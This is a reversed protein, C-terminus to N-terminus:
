PKVEELVKSLGNNTRRYIDIEPLPKPSYNNQTFNITSGGSSDDGDDDRSDQNNQFGNDAEVAGSYSTKLSIPRTKFLGDISSANKHIDTLDLVPTIVPNMDMEGSVLSGLNSMTDKLATLASKGVSEASKEVMPINKEMGLALGEDNFEGVEFFEKSPSNIGLVDKAANLAARAVDRAKSAIAGVGATLGKLMGNIIATALESGAKAMRDSNDNIAKTLGEIFSIILNVGAAIIKPLGKAVGNIFNAIIELAVTVVKSINDRIGELIAILIAYGSKVMKPVAKELEALMLTLLKLLTKIVVPATIDIATIIAMLVTTIAQTIAPGATAIVEAFTVVALGIQRAVQPLLSLMATVIAVMAATGAAGAISLATLGAAFALIGVGAALVGIGLLTIAAGLGILTPILPTLVLGAVGLVVFVGALMALGKAIEEWTMGSFLKLIPALIALSGAVVLLAAAGPLAGSMGLMALTIIGLAGALTTLGKGIEEWSMGGMKKLAETIMGLSLAVILIGAASLPATPPILSIAVGILTLAGALATLGAGIDSWSMGGMEKLADAIMGLSMAAVLVGAAGLVGTPPILAIATGILALGGAMAVLGKAIEEWSLTAFDKLASALIKIGTALLIIGAGQVIGGANAQNFKTFLILAGLVAGVGLLGKALEEWSLVALDGVASALVKVGAGLAIMAVGTSIMGAPNPMFKATAVMLGLVVTVGTLGKALEVWDLGSLAKVSSVMIRLAIGLVGMAGALAYIEAIDDAKLFKEMVMLAGFLQTFMVTIATLARTLGGADIKSLASISLTMIGIAAAIQLLTTARLTNQMSKFAGTVSEVLDNINDVLGGAGGGGILNRLMLLLGAGLGTNIANLLDDFKLGGMAESINSAFGQWFSVFKEAFPSFIKIIKGVVSSFGSWAKSAIKGLIGFPELKNVVNALDAAAKTGDFEGFLTKLFSGLRQLARIPVEIVKGLKGFFTEIGKGDKLAQRLGVLFDGVNATFELFGGSGETAVGLLRFIMKIFETGIDVGIGIVAFLGAFTRRINNMTDEGTKLGIFFDRVNETIEVLREATIAPFIDRFAKKIPVVVEMLANFAHTVADILATRGGLEKWEALLDNRADANKTLFGGIVDSLGSWLITAEEVNGFLIEWTKAWGSGAAEKLTDFLATMTKVDQAASLANKALAQIQVIQEKTYGLAKLQADSLDGTFKQLTETLVQNTLWGEQLSNRFSGNKKIMADVNVGHVKATEILSDQFLRGAMGGASELSMWDQLRVSGSSLALSMQYMARAADTANTGTVAAVNSLGKIAATSTKIDIGATTFMKVSKTMENFSYITQDSYHNLEDLADTVQDLTTGAKATNALITKISTLKDEYEDLGTKIPAITLSRLINQGADVAKNVINTLATIGIISLTKFKNAINDVSASMHDLTFNKAAAGLDHLGKTAGDLKLGKNLNDLTNLTQKSAAEFQKNDFKMEVVRTDITTSM